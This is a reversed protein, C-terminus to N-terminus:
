ALASERWDPHGGSKKHGLPEPETEPDWAIAALAAAGGKDYCWYADYQYAWTDGKMVIIRDNYIMQIVAVVFHETVKVVMGGITANYGIKPLDGM